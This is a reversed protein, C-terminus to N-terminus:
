YLKKNSIKLKKGHFGKQFKHMQPEHEMAEVLVSEGREHRFHKCGKMKGGKYKTSPIM